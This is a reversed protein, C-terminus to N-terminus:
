ARLGDTALGEPRGHRKGLKRLFRLAAKKDRHKPAFAELGEGKHDVARRLHHQVGNVELLVEDLHWRRCSVLRLQQARGQRIGAAFLPGLHRWGFRATEHNGEIGRGHLLGEVSGLSM